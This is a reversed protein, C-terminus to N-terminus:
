SSFDGTMYSQKGLLCLGPLTVPILNYSVYRNFSKDLLKWFTVDGCCLNQWQYTNAAFQTDQLFETWSITCYTAHNPCNQLNKSNSECVNKGGYWALNGSQILSLQVWNM